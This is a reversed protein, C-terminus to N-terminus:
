AALLKKADLSSLKKFYISIEVPDTYISNNVFPLFKREVKLIKSILKQYSRIAENLSNNDGKLNSQLKAIERKYENYVAPGEQKSMSKAYEQQYAALEKEFTNIREVHYQIASILNTWATIEEIFVKNLESMWKSIKNRSKEVSKIAVAIQSKATRLNRWMGPIATTTVEREKIGDIIEVASKAGEPFYKYWVTVITAKEAM